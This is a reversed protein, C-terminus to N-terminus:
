KSKNANTTATQYHSQRYQRPTQGTAKRFCSIFYSQSSFNFYEAIDSYNMDSYILMSEAAKIKKHVIYEKINRGTEKKFLHSLYSANLNLTNAIGELTLPSQLHNNIYDIAHMAPLSFVNNKDLKAMRKTFDLLMEGQIHLIDHSHECVDIKNIYLDSLTYAEERLMGYEVCLRTILATFIVFHYKTNQLPNKSLIGNNENGVANPRMYNAAYKEVLSINGSAIAFYLEYEEEYGVHELAEERQRFLRYNLEQDIRMRNVM